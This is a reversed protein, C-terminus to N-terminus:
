KKTLADGVAILVIGALICLDSINFIIRDIWGIGTQFSFYDVVYRRVARDYLNGAAGGILFALGYKVLKKGKQPMIFAMMICLLTVMISSAALVWESKHEWIDMVIGANHHKTLKIRNKWIKKGRVKEGYQEIYRKVFFDTFFIGPVMLLPIWKEYFKNKM